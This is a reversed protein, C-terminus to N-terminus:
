ACVQFGNKCVSQSFEPGTFMMIASHLEHLGKLIQHLKHVRMGSFGNRVNM